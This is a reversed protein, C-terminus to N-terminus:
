QSNQKPNQHIPLCPIQCDAVRNYQLMTSFITTFLDPFIQAQELYPRLFVMDTNSTQQQVVGGKESGKTVIGVPMNWFYGPPHSIFAKYSSHHHVATIKASPLNLCSSLQSNLVLKLQIILVLNAQGVSNTQRLFPFCFFCIVLFWFFIVIVEGSGLEFLGGWVQKTYKIGKLSNLLVHEQTFCVHPDIKCDTGCLHVLLLMPYIM